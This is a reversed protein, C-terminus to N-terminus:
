WARAEVCRAGLAKLDKLLRTVIAMRLELAERAEERKDEMSLESSQPERQQERQRHQGQASPLPEQLAEM